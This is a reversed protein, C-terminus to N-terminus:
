YLHQVVFNTNALLKGKVAVHAHNVKYKYYFNDFDPDEAEWVSGTLKASSSAALALGLQYTLGPNLSRQLGLFLEANAITSNKNNAIYGNALDPELDIIQTTGNSTWAPGASFTVVKSYDEQAEGMTGAVCSTSVLCILPALFGTKM